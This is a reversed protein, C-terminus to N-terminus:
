KVLKAITNASKIVGFQPNNKGLKSRKQMEIFESSLKRDSMPNLHGSRKLGFELKHKFGLTSGATPSQNLTLLSHKTFLLNLYFQEACARM